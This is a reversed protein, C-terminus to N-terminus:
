EDKFEQIDAFCSEINEGEGDFGRSIRDRIEVTIAAEILNTQMESLVTSRRYDGGSDPNGSVNILVKDEAFLYLENFDFTRMRELRNKAINIAVYHSRAKDSTQKLCVAVKCMGGICLSLVFIAVLAEILTLGVRSSM